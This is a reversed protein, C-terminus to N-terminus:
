IPYEGLWQVSVPQGQVARYLRLDATVVPQGTGEALALYAADYASRGFRQALPLMQQWAVPRLEIGLSEFSSLIEGAQETSIRGRRQAQVVANTVEYVLLTPAVLQARGVAHDRILSQAQPQNEDPFFASLVVSADVIM